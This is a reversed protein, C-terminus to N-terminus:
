TNRMDSESASVVNQLTRQGLVSPFGIQGAQPPKSALSARRDFPERAAIAIKQLSTLPLDISAM